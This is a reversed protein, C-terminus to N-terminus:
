LIAHGFAFEMLILASLGVMALRGHVREMAETFLGPPVSYTDRVAEVYDAQTGQLCSVQGATAM